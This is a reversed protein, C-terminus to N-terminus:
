TKVSERYKEILKVFWITIHNVEYGDLHNLRKVEKRIKTLAIFRSRNESCSHRQKLLKQVGVAWEEVNRSATRWLSLVTVCGILIWSKQYRSGWAAGEGISLKIPKCPGAWARFSFAQVEGHPIVMAGQAERSGPIWALCPIQKKM